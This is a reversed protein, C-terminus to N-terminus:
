QQNIAAGGMDVSEDIAKDAYRSRALFDAVDRTMAFKGRRGFLTFIKVGIRGQVRAREFAGRSNFGLERRLIQGTMLSGNELTLRRELERKLALIELDVSMKAKRKGLITSTPCWGVAEEM